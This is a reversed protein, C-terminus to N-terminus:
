KLNEHNVQGPRFLPDLRRRTVLRRGRRHQEEPHVKAPDHRCSPHSRLMSPTEASRPTAQGRPREPSIGGHPPRGVMTVVRRHLGTRRSCVGAQTEQSRQLGQQRERTRAPGLSGTGPGCFTFYRSTVGDMGCSQQCSNLLSEAPSKLAAYSFPTSAAPCPRNGSSLLSRGLLAPAISCNPCNSSRLTTCVALTAQELLTASLPPVGDACLTFSHRPRLLLPRCIGTPRQHHPNQGTISPVTGTVQLQRFFSAPTQREVFYVVPWAM